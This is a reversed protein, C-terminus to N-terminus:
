RGRRGWSEPKKPPPNASSKEPSGQKPGPHPKATDRPGRQPQNGQSSERRAKPERMRAGLKEEPFDDPKRRHRAEHEKAADGIVSLVGQVDVQRSSEQFLGTLHVQPTLKGKEYLAWIEKAYRLGLIGPEIRGFYRALNNVDRAFLSAASNNGAANVAQPLDIIVPGRADVLVNFESLDGHIYGACLMRVVQAILDEHYSIAEDPTLTVEDLRPAVGGEADTILEM